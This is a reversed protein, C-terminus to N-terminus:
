PKQTEAEDIAALEDLAAELDDLDIDSERIPGKLARKLAKRKEPALREIRQLLTTEADIVEKPPTQGITELAVSFRDTVLLLKKGTQALFEDRLMSQNEFYTRDRTVVIFDDNANALIIEWIVEDGVTYKDDSTPPNGLLKRRQARQVLDDTTNYKQIASEDWLAFVRQAVPDVVENELLTQLFRVVEQAKKKYGELIGALEKHAPLDKLIATTYPKRVEVSKKFERLLWNLTRVRNRRFESITQDTVVLSAHYRALVDLVAVNDLAVQYFDVYCNTDIYIKTM